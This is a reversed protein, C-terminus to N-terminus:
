PHPSETEIMPGSCVVQMLNSLGKVEQAETEKDLIHSLLLVSNALVNYPKFLIIHVFHRLVFCPTLVDPLAIWVLPQRMPLKLFRLKEPELTLSYYFRLM